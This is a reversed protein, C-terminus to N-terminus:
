GFFRRLFQHILSKVAYIAPPILRSIGHMKIMPIIRWWCSYIRMLGKQQLAIMEEPFIDSVQMVSYGYRHYKSFDEDVLKLGHEQNEAMRLMDTGPYPIAIGYTVHIIDRAKCLYDVTRKISARTEGPLGLMVSTMTEIGLKKNIKNAITHSELPIQKKIIKRIEPDATELGFSIRRLGCEKLRRALHEDWRDARTHGEFTFKLNQKEIGDCLDLMYKMDLTLTDDSFYIHQAGFKNIVLDLEEIVKSISKKRIKNGYLTNACYVCSFPCGRTMQVMSCLKKGEPTSMVYLENKLLSRDPFPVDDLDLPAPADGNYITKDGNRMIVGKTSMIRKGEAFERLFQPFVLESEGVFVYDFCDLFAKERFISVHPGGIIIPVDLKEKILRSVVEVSHFFPTTATIGVLDPQFDALKALIGEGSLLEIEGDIVQVEWGEKEALAGLICLNLPPLPLISKAVGSFAGYDVTYAPLILTLKM